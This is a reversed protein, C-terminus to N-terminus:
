SNKITKENNLVSQSVFLMLSHIKPEFLQYSVYTRCSIKEGSHFTVNSAACLGSPLNSLQRQLVGPIAPPSRRMLGLNQSDVLRGSSRRM